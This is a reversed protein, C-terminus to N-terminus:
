TAHHHKSQVPEEGSKAILVEKVAAKTRVFDDKRYSTKWGQTSTNDDFSCDILSLEPTEEEAASIDWCKSPDDRLRITGDSYAEFPDSMANFCDYLEMLLTDSTPAVRICRNPNMKSRIVFDNDFQTWQQQTTGDCPLMVLKEGNTAVRGHELSLCYPTTEDKELHLGKSEIRFWEPLMSQPGGFSRGTMAQSSSACFPADTQEWEDCVVSRIWEMEGSVRAYNGPYEAEACGTGFSVVGVQSHKKGHIVV